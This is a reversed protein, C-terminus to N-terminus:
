RTSRHVDLFRRNEVTRHLNPLIVLKGANQLLRCPELAASVADMRRGVTQECEDATGKELLSKGFVDNAFLTVGCSRQADKYPSRGSIGGNKKTVTAQWTDIAGQFVVGFEDPTNKDGIFLKVQALGSAIGDPALVETFLRRGRTFFFFKDIDCLRPQIVDATAQRDLSGFANAM